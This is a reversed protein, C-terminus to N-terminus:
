RRGAPKKAAPLAKPKAAPKVAVPKAAASTAGPPRYAVTKKTGQDMEAPSILATTTPTFSGAASVALSLAAASAVDPLEVIAYVDAGGFAFYFAEQKGGLGKVAAELAKARASGGDKVLGQVGERTYSGHLLVQAHAEGRAQRHLRKPWVIAANHCSDANRVSETSSM